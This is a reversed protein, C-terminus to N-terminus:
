SGASYKVVACPLDQKALVKCGQRAQAESLNVFRARYLQTGDNNAATVVTTGKGGIVPALYGAAIDLARYANDFHAFAGVQVAWPLDDVSGQATGSYSATDDAADDEVDDSTASALVIGDGSAGQADPSTEPLPVDFDESSSASAVEVTESGRLPNVGPLPVDVDLKAAMVFGEGLLQRMRTDRWVRSQGGMIVAVIRRGDRLASAVLNWGAANTFGTKMGDVGDVSGLLHNHNGYTQGHWTFSRTSFYRYDQPFDSQLRLALTAMDRASSVMSDNPLGSANAFVTHSMGLRRAQETMLHAFHTESGGLAEAVVVAVDNASKTVLALIADKVKITDGPHLGLKSPAQAAAHSSVPLETELSLRGDNLADFLLYLTMMKTLSAPYHQKDADRQYLVNGNTADVVIATYGAQAAAATAGAALGIVLLTFGTRRALKGYRYLLGGVGRM